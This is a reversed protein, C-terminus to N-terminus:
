QSEKLACIHVQEDKKGQKEIHNVQEQMEKYVKTDKKNEGAIELKNKMADNKQEYNNEEYNNQVNAYNENEQMYQERM